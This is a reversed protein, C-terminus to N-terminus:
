YVKMWKLEIFVLATKKCCQQVIVSINNYVRIKYDLIERQLNFLLNRRKFYQQVTSESLNENNVLLSIDSSWM